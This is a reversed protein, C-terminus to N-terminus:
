LKPWKKPAIIYRQLIFNAQESIQVLMIGKGIEKVQDHVKEIVESAKLLKRNPEIYFSLWCHKPMVLYLGKKDITKDMEDIYMWIGNEDSSRSFYPWNSSTYHKFLYGNLLVKKSDVVLQLKDGYDSLKLQSEFKRMKKGLTDSGNPGIWMDHKPSNKFGMYYKVAVELHTLEDTPINRYVFDLEGLTEKENFLQKGSYVLEFQYYHEFFFALLREFYKGLILQEEAKFHEILKKPNDKLENFWELFLHEDKIAILNDLLQGDFEPIEIKLISGSM